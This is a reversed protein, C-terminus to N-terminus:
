PALRSVQWGAPAWRYVLRDHMRNRRGQWFEIREPRVLYGGWEEPVRPNAVGEFKAEADAYAGALEERGAVERSQHSAWAGIRSARPRQDFYKEVAARPLTAASGEVRVQREIPHWGFLLACAPNEALEIGKRSQQNTFFVFGDASVGKLLVMRQSPVGSSTATALVMANPEPLTAEIAENMWRDFMDIPDSALDAEDLGGLSYESRLAAWREADGTV